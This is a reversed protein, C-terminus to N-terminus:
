MVIKCKAIKKEHLHYQVITLLMDNINNYHNPM